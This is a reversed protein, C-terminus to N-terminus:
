GRTVEKSLEVEGELLRTVFGSGSIIELDYVGSTFDLAATDAEEITLEIVGTAGTMAMRGNETTLEIQPEADTINKRIMMRATYGSLDIPTGAGDKFAMQFYFTAGQQIANKGYETDTFNYNGAGM